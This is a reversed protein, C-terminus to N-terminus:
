RSSSNPAPTLFAHSTAPDKNFEATAPAEQAMAVDVKAEVIEGPSVETAGSKPALIREAITHPRRSM